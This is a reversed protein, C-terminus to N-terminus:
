PRRREPSGSPSGPALSLLLPSLVWRREPVLVPLVAGVDVLEPDGVFWGDDLAVALARRDPLSQLLETRLLREGAAIHRAEISGGRGAALAAERLIRVTTGPVGGGSLVARRLLPAPDTLGGSGSLRRSMAVCLAAISAEDPLGDAGYLPVPGLTWGLNFRADRYRRPARVLTSPPVSFIVSPLREDCLPSGPGLVDELMAGPLRDLGDVLLLVPRPGRLPASMAIWRPIHAAFRQPRDVRVLLPHALHRLAGALRHLTTSKGVDPPGTLTGRIRVGAALLASTREIFGGDLPVLAAGSPIRSPELRRLADLITTPWSM